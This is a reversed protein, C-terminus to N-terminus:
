ETPKRGMKNVRRILDPLRKLAASQRAADRLPVAPTGFVHAGAPLDGTVGSQGGVVTGDGITVQERIGAQGWFICGTGTTVSGSFGVGAAMANFKGIRCNHGVQVLNDIKTGHGIRTEGLFARDICTNAGIEAEDEIVVIGVQPVKCPLGDIVEYKFGDTGLVVGSHLIVRSGVIVREQITVNPYLVTSEGIVAARGVYCQAGIEADNGIRADREVVANPGIHVGLGIKALPDIVASPHIETIAREDPYFIDITQIVGKWVNEVQLCPRGELQLDYNVLFAGAKSTIAKERLKASAVFSLNEGTAEDLTALGEIIVENGEDQVLTANLRAALENLNLKLGKKRRM